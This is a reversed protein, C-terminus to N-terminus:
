GIKRWALRIGAAVTGANNFAVDIEDGKDFPLPPDFTEVYDTKGNLSESLIVADHKAGDNADFTLSLVDTVAGASALHAYVAVLEGKSNPAFSEVIAGPRVATAYTEFQLAGRGAWNGDPDRELSM